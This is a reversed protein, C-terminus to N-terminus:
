YYKLADERTFDKYTPNSAIKDNYLTDFDPYFEKLSSILASLGEKLGQERGSQERMNGYSEKIEDQSLLLMSMIDEVELRHMRLYDALFGRSICINIAESMAENLNTSNALHEKMIVCFMLYQGIIDTRGDEAYIIKVRLDIDSDPFFEEKLSLYDPHDNQPAAFLVYLEPSTSEDEPHLSRYLELLPVKDERGFLNTFVTDKYNRNIEDM